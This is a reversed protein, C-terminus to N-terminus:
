SVHRVILFRVQGERAIYVLEDPLMDKLSEIRFGDKSYVLISCESRGFGMRLRVLDQFEEWTDALFFIYVRWIRNFVRAISVCFHNWVQCFLQM